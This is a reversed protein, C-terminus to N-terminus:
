RGDDTESRVIVFEYKGVTEVEIMRYEHDARSYFIPSTFSASMFRRSKVFQGPPASGGADIKWGIAGVNTPQFDVSICKINGAQDEPTIKKTRNWSDDNM